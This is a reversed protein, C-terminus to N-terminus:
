KTLLIERLAPMLNPLALAEKVTFLQWPSHKKPEQNKIENFRYSGIEVEFIFCKFDEEKYCDILRMDEGIICMGTEEQMERRAAQIACEDGDVKGGVAAWWGVFTKCPAKRQCLMIKPKDITSTFWVM